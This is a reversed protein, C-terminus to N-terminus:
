PSGARHREGDIRIRARSRNGKAGTLTSHEGSRAGLGAYRERGAPDDSKKNM